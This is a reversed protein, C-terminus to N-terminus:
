LSLSDAIFAFVPGASVAGSEGDEVLVVCVYKPEEYPFFGTYWAQIIEHGDSKIGTQASGTKAACGVRETETNKGTGYVVCARMYERLQWATERSMVRRSEKPPIESLTGHMDSYGMFISPETMEGENAISCILSAVHLPTMMLNGQGFSLNALAAPNQLEKIDPLIGKDTMWGDCIEVASGMGLDRAFDLIAEGGTQKALEIFYTNCSYAVAEEMCIEGHGSRNSCNFVNNGIQVYGTCNYSFSSPVGSELAAGAVVLKFVSGVDYRSFGRNILPADSDGLSEAINEPDFSPVSVCAIIQATHADLVLIAGKEIYKEAATQAIMQVDADITLVAGAKSASTSDVVEPEIGSLSRGRADVTYTAKLTGSHQSLYDDFAREAGSVGKGDYNVYGIVHDAIRRGYRTPVGFVDVGTGAASADDVSIMFPASGTLKEGIPFLQEQEFTRTVYEVTEESPTIVARYENKEGALPRMSRDYITGRTAALTVTYRSQANATEVYDSRVSVELIRFILFAAAFVIVGFLSVIRKSLFDDGFLFIL